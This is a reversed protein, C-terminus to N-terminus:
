NKFDEIDEHIIRDIAEKAISVFANAFSKMRKPLAESAIREMQKDPGPFSEMWLFKIKLALDEPNRPDFYVADLPDQERHVMIDSLLIRKGVSKTEEVTTSWGEFLSPNLVFVSQRIIQFIDEHPILGLFVVQEQLNLHFVMDKLSNFYDPNRYDSENGSCVVYPMLNDKKLIHLAKFVLIHNKHKWFQNPLYIFKDPLPYKKLYESPRCSYLYDPVKAAFSLVRGKHAYEPTFSSFDNLANKSSLVVLTSKQSTEKYTKNRYALEDQSFMEPLYLHQFDPLWSLTATVPKPECTVLSFVVEKSNKSGRRLRNEFMRGYRLLNNYIFPYLRTTVKKAFLSLFFNEDWTKENMKLIPANAVEIQPAYNLLAYLLNNSYVAGGTWLNTNIFPLYVRIKNKLM